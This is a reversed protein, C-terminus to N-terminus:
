ADAPAEPTSSGPAATGPNPPQSEYDRLRNYLTKLSIGLEEATIKKDGDNRDLAALILTKEVEALPAGMPVSIQPENARNEMDFSVITDTGPLNSVEIFADSMIYAREIYNKLERVNGPWTKSTIVDIADSTLSITTGHKENLTNLFYQALGAIDSQRQRLPPVLVPFQALRYYLDERLKGEKIAKDPSVNTASLFRVDVTIVEESGLRRFMRTELVRLLKSQLNIDMETVEDLFLTGGDAQEFLGRHRSHAGSFSGKEHGFLQSEIISEAVAACNVCIFPQASRASLTHVTQAVLEKGTGSEGVIMLSADTQAVKRLLRYLKRMSPSNGRLFGFQDVACPISEPDPKEAPLAEQVVDRMIPGLVLPDFPKCFFYSAGKRIAEDALKPNDHDSMFVSEIGDLTGDELLSLGSSQTDETGGHLEIFAIVVHHNALAERAEPVNTAHLVQAGIDNCFQALREAHAADSDLVLSYPTL